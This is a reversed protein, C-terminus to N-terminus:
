LSGNWTERLANKSINSFFCSAFMYSTYSHSWYAYCFKMVIYCRSVFKVKLHTSKGRFSGFTSQVWFSDQSALCIYVMFFLWHLAIFHCELSLIFLKIVPVSKLTFLIVFGITILNERQFVMRSIWSATVTHWMLENAHISSVNCGTRSVTM